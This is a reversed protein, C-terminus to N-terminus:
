IVPPFVLRFLYVGIPLIYVAVGALVAICLFLVHVQKQIPTLFGLLKKQGFCLVLAAVLATILSATLGIKFGRPSFTIRIRNEGQELPILMFSDFAKFIKQEEGNVLATFGEDYPIPLFLKGNPNESYASGSITSDAANLDTNRPIGELVTQLKATDIGWVGFSHATISKRLTITVEVREKEFMGLLVLGNNSQTPYSQMLTKNNVKIIISDNIPEALQNTSRHFCDFYLATPGEIPISYHLTAPQSPNKITIKHNNDAIEYHINNFTVETYNTTVHADGETLASLMAQGAKIRQDPLLYSFSQNDGEVVVGFPMQYDSRHLWYGGNTYILEEASPNISNRSLIYRNNLIADTIISGGHSGVEMWYSSYGLRKMAFMYDQRTLSTYHALNNYGIAGLLNVDFLKRDTKVRYFETDGIKGGMNTIWAYYQPSHAAAGMYVGGSFIGEILVMGAMTVAFVPYSLRGLRVGLVLLLYGAAFVLFMLLLYRYSNYSVWLSSVYSSLEKLRRTLLLYALLNCGGWVGLPLLLMSLKTTPAAKTLARDIGLGALSLGILIPIFGYRVPFAQYSGTHWVKNIPDIFLPIFMLLFLSIGWLSWKSYQRDIAALVCGIACLACCFLISVTSYIHTFFANGGIAQDATRASVLYQFFSPLWIVTTLGLALVTGAALAVSIQQRGSKEEGFFIFYSGVAFIVFLIVAYSIYYNVTIIAALALSYWLFKGTKLLHLLALALLPFLYLIDMWVNNQYYMMTYGGLAYGTSLVAVILRRNGGLVKDFWFAATLSATLAKLMVLVNAWQLIDSKHILPTLLTFPSCVFFLLVGWFNMGGATKLNYGLNLGNKLLDGAQMMLPMVQQTMDCWALTKEGFPYLGYYYYGVSLGALTLLPALLLPLKRKVTM